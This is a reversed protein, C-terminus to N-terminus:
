SPADHIGLDRTARLHVKAYGWLNKNVTIAVFPSGAAPKYSDVGYTSSISPLGAMQIGSCTYILVVIVPWPWKNQYGVATVIQGLAMILVYPILATLPMEPERIGNNRATARASVWDSFPGAAALGILRGAVMAFNTLGVSQSGLNYPPAAFVQSQTLNLILVCSLSWSFIFSVFLVIPFTFLKLPMYVSLILSRLSWSHLQLLKWQQRSPGGKGLWPIMEQHQPESVKTPAGPGTESPSDTNKARFFMTEPFGFIIVVLSPATIAANLWWFSPWGKYDVM